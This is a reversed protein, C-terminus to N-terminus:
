NSIGGYRHGMSKRDRELAKEADEETLFEVFGIGTEKGSEDRQVVIGGPVIALGAFVCCM